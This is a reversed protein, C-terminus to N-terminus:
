SVDHFVSGFAYFGNIMVGTDELVQAVIPRLVDPMPGEKRRVLFFRGKVVDETGLMTITLHSPTGDSNYWQREKDEVKFGELTRMTKVVESDMCYELVVYENSPAILRFTLSSSDGEEVRDDEHDIVLQTNNFKAKLHDRLEIGAWKRISDMLQARPIVVPIETKGIYRYGPEDLPVHRCNMMNGSVSVLSVTESADVRHFLRFFAVTAAVGVSLLGTAVQLARLTTLSEPTKGDVAPQGVPLSMPVPKHTAQALRSSSTLQMTFPRTKSQFFNSFDMSGLGICSGLLACTALLMPWPAVISHSM